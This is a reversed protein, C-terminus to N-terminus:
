TTNKKYFDLTGLLSSLALTFYFILNIVEYYRYQGLFPITLAIISLVFYLLFWKSKVLKYLKFTVIYFFVAGVIMTLLLITGLILISNTPQHSSITENLFSLAGVSCLFLVSGIINFKNIKEDEYFLSINKIFLYWVGTMFILYILTIHNNMFVKHPLSYFLMGIAYIIGLNKANHITKDM